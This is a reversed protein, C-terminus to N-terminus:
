GGARANLKVLLERQSIARVVYSRGVPCQRLTRITAFGCAIM